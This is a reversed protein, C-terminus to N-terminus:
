FVVNRAFPFGSNFHHDASPLPDQKGELLVPAVVRSQGKKETNDARRRLLMSLMDSSLRFFGCSCAINGCFAAHECARALCPLM